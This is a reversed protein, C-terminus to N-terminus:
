RGFFGAVEVVVHTREFAYVNVAGNTGAPIIASNTVVQGQFASLISANPFAQGAPYVTLFPMPSGGPLATVNLAYGKATPPIGACGSTPIPITRTSRADYIPGGYPAPAGTTSDSVRCQTVPYYYQGNTGDDPAFYGNIDVLFDTKDYAYVDISGDPSAPIIVSNALIRGAPSNISSVNPQGQNSPWATMFALPGQPVATLTFSSAAAGAPVSCHPSDPFKFRRSTQAAMSPPGFPGPQPRYDQRTEVVRCPTLPYYVLNTGQTTYDTFYGSIDIIVDTNHSAYVQITGGPGPKVLAANAVILGDPSRVTWFNPRAEGGPWVTVFDVGGRPVLTVNLVYTKATTPISCVNSNPVTLTRTEGANMFPPGFAGTRGQFNYEPRTEMIRCPPLSVFRLGGPTTPGPVAGTPSSVFSYTGGAAFVEEFSTSYIAGVLTYNGVAPAPVTWSRSSSAGPALTGFQQEAGGTQGQFNLTGRVGYAELDGSNTATCNVAFNAGAVVAPPGSCSISLVPGTAPVFGPNSVVLSFPEQTAGFALQQTFARVKIVLEGAVGTNVQEVNDIESDSRSLPQSNDRRYAILDLDTLSHLPGAVLRNWVLTASLFSSNTGRYLRYPLGGLAGTVFSEILHGAGSQAAARNLNVHGWGRDKAWGVNNTTNILLAKISRPNTIGLQRILLAAGAIHPAAMSTGSLRVFELFPPHSPIDFGFYGDWNNNAASIDTGPAAIDPKKRGAPPPGRSSSEHITDYLGSPGKQANAVTIVNYAIGPTRIRKDVQIGNLTGENGAAVVITALNTQDQLSDVRRALNDDEPYEGIGLSVNFVRAQTYTLARDIGRLLDSTLTDNSNACLVKISIIRSAGFAVGRFNPYWFTGAGAITGAVHTGHGQFDEPSLPDDRYLCPLTSSTMESVAVVRGAGFAPHNARIGSDLVAVSQGNGTYGANWFTGTGIAPVSGTIQATIPKDLAIEEIEPDQELIDLATAPIHASLATVFTLRDVRSAGLGILRGQMRDLAPRTAQQIRRAAEKRIELVIEDVPKHADALDERTDPARRAIEAYRSEAVSLLLSAAGEVAELIQRQPQFTLYVLVPLITRTKAAERLAPDIKPARFVAAPRSQKPQLRAATPGESFEPVRLRDQVDQAMLTLLPLFAVVARLILHWGCNRPKTVAELSMSIMQCPFRIASMASM